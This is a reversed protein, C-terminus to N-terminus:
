YYPIGLNLLMAASAPLRQIFRLIMEFDISHEERQNKKKENENQM